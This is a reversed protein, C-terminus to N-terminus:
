RIRESGDFYRLKYSKLLTYAEVTSSNEHLMNKIENSFCLVPLM